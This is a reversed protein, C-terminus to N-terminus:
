IRRSVSEERLDGKGTPKSDRSCHICYFNCSNTVDLEVNMPVLPFIVFNDEKYIEKYVEPVDKFLLQGSNCNFSLLDYYHLTQLFSDIERTTGIEDVTREGNIQHFPLLSSAQLLM